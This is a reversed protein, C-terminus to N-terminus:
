TRVWSALKARVVDLDDAVRRLLRKRGDHAFEDYSFEALEIGHQPLVERRREDYRARQEGRHVGSVTLRRDFFAVRETHQREQYEIVLHLSPYYADVALSVGIGRKGPDGRLFDFRHQRYAKQGLIRDCLGIVYSEDDGDSPPMQGREAPPTPQLPGYTVTIRGQSVLRDFDAPTIRNGWDSICFGIGRLQNRVRKQEDRPLGVRRRLLQRIREAQAASFRCRGKM